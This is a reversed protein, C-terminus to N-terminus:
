DLYWHLLLTLFQFYNNFSLIGKIKQQKRIVYMHQADEKPKKLIEENKAEMFKLKLMSKFDYPGM